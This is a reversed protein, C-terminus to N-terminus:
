INKLIYKQMIEEHSINKELDDMVEHSINKELDDM